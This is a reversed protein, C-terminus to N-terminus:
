RKVRALPLVGELHGRMIPHQNGGAARAKRAVQQEVFEYLEQLTVIGDTNTDAAGRLGEVLYYTFVGHGLEPLELSVEAARSATIIARGRSRALRQIFEDDVHGARTKRSGFTRGGAAGSYCTDLFAVVREAEIRSFITELEDMPLASSYLDDAEADAPVLYKAFGDREVGRPDVEPAGHGAFFILVTDDKGASRALFTGLAWRINRLTPKRDTKDTLLLVRERKFGGSALLTQYIAEADPVTYRLRPITPDEHRSVGIVVAWQERTPPRPAPKDPVAVAVPKPELTVARVGEGATGQSDVARVRISNVGEQLKVPVALLLSKAPQREVQQHVEKGNLEVVVRRVGRESSVQAAIVSSEDRLRAADQPYTFAVTVPPPKVFNVARTEQHTTGSGDTVSLAVTNAGERLKLPVKLPVSQPGAGGDLRTIETGNLTVLVQRKGHGGSLLAEVNLDEREVAAPEAPATVVMTLPSAEPVPTTSPSVLPPSGSGIPPSTKQPPRSPSVGAPTAAVTTPRDLAALEFNLIPGEAKVLQRAEPSYWLTLVGPIRLRTSDSAFYQLIKFANFTGAALEITEHGSVEWTMWASSRSRFSIPRTLISLEPWGPALLTVQEVGWKGVVLPWKIRPAPHLEWEVEGRRSVRVIALDKTMQIERGGEAAFVYLDKEIRLLDFVGDSRIWKDGVAYTPREARLKQAWAGVPALLCALACVILLAVSRRAATM